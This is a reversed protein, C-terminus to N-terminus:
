FDVTNSVKQMSIYFHTAQTSSVNKYEKKQHVNVLYM